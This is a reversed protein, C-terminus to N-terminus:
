ECAKRPKFGSGSRPWHWLGFFRDLLDMNEFGRDADASSRLLNLYSGDMRRTNWMMFGDCDDNLRSDTVDDKSLSSSSLFHSVPRAFSHDTKLPSGAQLKEDEESDTGHHQVLRQALQSGVRFGGHVPHHDSLDKLVLELLSATGLPACEAECGFRLRPHSILFDADHFKTNGRRYGGGALVRWAEPEFLGFRPDSRAVRELSLRM